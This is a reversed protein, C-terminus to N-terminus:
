LFEIDVFAHRKLSKMLRNTEESNIDGLKLQYFDSCYYSENLSGAFVFMSDNWVVATHSSRGEPITGYVELKTLKRSILDFELTNNGTKSYSNAEQGGFIYCKKNFVVASCFSYHCNSVLYYLQKCEFTNLNIVFLKPQKGGFIYLSHKDAVACHRDWLQVFIGGKLKKLSWKNQKVDYEYIGSEDATCGGIVYM